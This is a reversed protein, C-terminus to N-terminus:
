RHKEQLTFCSYWSHGVSLTHIIKWNYLLSFCFLPLLLPCPPPANPELKRTFASFFPFGCLNTQIIVRHKLTGVRVIRPGEVRWSHHSLSPLKMIKSGVLFWVRSTACYSAKGLLNKSPVLGVSVSLSNGQQNKCDLSAGHDMLTFTIESQNFLAAQCWSLVLYSIM